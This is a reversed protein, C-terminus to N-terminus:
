ENNVEEREDERKQRIKAAKEAIRDSLMLIQDDTIEISIRNDHVDTFEINSWGISFRAFETEVVQKVKM